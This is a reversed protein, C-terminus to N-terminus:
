LGLGVACPVISTLRRLTIPSSQVALSACGIPSLILDSPEMAVVKSGTDGCGSALDLVVCVSGTPVDRTNWSIPRTTVM